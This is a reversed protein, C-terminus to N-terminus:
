FSHAPSRRARAQANAIQAGGLLVDNQGAFRNEIQQAADQLQRDSRPEFYAVVYTLRRDHSIMAPDHTDDFSVVSAVDPQARLETAVQEVRRRAVATRVDGSRVIAVIGPDIERGAAAAYRNAAQVSQTAPDDASYPSM